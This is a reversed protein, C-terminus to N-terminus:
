NFNISYAMAQFAFQRQLLKNLREIELKILQEKASSRKFNSKGPQKNTEM